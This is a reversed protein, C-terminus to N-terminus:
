FRNRSQALRDYNIYALYGVIFINWPHVTALLFYGLGVIAVCAVISVISAIRVAQHARMKTKLAHELVHGGDLPIIPLLNVLGWLLNLQVLRAWLYWGLHGQSAPMGWVVSFPSFVAELDFLLGAERGWSPIFGFWLLGWLAFGFLPGAVSLWIGRWGAAQGDSATYAGMGGLVVISRSGNTKAAYVHGFEHVLLAIVVSLCDIFIYGPGLGFSGQSFILLLLLFMGQVYVPTRFITFVHFGPAAANM